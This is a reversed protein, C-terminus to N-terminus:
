SGYTVEIWGGGLVFGQSTRMVLAQGPAVGYQVEKFIVTTEEESVRKVLAEVPVMASRYQVFAEFEERLSCGLPQWRTGQLTVQLVELDKKRGVVVKQDELSLVYFPDESSLGLGRRQGVTYHAIGRHEGLVEGEKNVIAGPSLAQALHTDNTKQSWDTLFETYDAFLGQLFCIDQSDPKQSVSLRQELAWARVDEKAAHGLPFFAKELVEESLAWLFYSQDRGRVRAPTLVDMSGEGSPIKQKRVYHGTALAGAKVQDAVESLLRFKVLPNCLCCPSPTKGSAYAKAFPELICAKFIERAEVVHLPIGLLAAVALADEESKSLSPSSTLKLFVGSVPYGAKKFLAATVSSDVGGSMGVVVHTGPQPWEETHVFSPLEPM